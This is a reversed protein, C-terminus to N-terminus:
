SQDSFGLHFEIYIFTEQAKLGKRQLIQKMSRLQRQEDKGPDPQEFM